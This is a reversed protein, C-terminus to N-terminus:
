GMSLSIEVFEEPVVAVFAIGMLMARCDVACVCTREDTAVAHVAVAVTLMTKNFSMLIERIM